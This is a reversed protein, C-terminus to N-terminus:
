IQTALAYVRGLFETVREKPCEEPWAPRRTNSLRYGSAATLEHLPLGVIDDATDLYSRRERQPADTVRLTGIRIRM